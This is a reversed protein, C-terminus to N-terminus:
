YRSEFKRCGRPKQSKFPSRHLIRLEPFYDKLKTDNILFYKGNASQMVSPAGVCTFM